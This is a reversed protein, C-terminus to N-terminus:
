TRLSYYSNTMDEEGMWTLNFSNGAFPWSKFLWRMRLVVLPHAHPFPSLQLVRHIVQTMLVLLPHPCYNGEHRGNLASITLPFSSTPPYREPQLHCVPCAHNHSISLAAVGFRLCKFAVQTSLKGSLSRSNQDHVRSCGPLM